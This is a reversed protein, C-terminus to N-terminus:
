RAVPALGLIAKAAEYAARPRALTWAGERLRQLEAPHTLLREIVPALDEARRVWYGVKWKEIWGCIRGENGPLPDFALIPLGCAFAETLTSGGPKSVVLDAAVMWANMNEVWGLVRSDRIDQTLERVQDELRRNKGTIFAAQFSRTVKRLEGVIQRPKGLGTGGFLFLLLPADHQIGLEARVTAREPLRAFSLDIPQGCTVIKAGPAGAAELEAALDEHTALYLDVEPQVWAQNFDMLELGVLPVSAQSERKFMAALECIGVETAVLVAPDFARIFRFLPRAGRRYLWRPGTSTSQHQIGEIWGWLSPWYKLPIEYSSYYARFWRACYELADVVEVILEPRSERLAQRLANAARRHSAGHSVTLILIRTV